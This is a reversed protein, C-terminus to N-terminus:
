PDIVLTPNGGIFYSSTHVTGVGGIYSYIKSGSPDPCPLPYVNTTSNNSGTVGYGAFAYVEFDNTSTTYNFSSTLNPFRVQYGAITGGYYLQL